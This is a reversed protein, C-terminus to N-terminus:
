PLLGADPQHENRVRRSKRSFGRLLDAIRDDPEGVQDLDRPFDPRPPLADEGPYIQSGKRNAAASKWIAGRRGRAGRKGPRRPGVFKFIVRGMVGALGLAGMIAALLMQVSHTPTGSSLDPAAFQSSAQSSPPQSSPQQSSLPQTSPLASANTDSYVKNPAASDPAPNNPMSSTPTSSSSTPTSSPV